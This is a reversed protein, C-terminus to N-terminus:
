SQASRKSLGTAPRKLMCSSITALRALWDPGQQDRVLRAGRMFARNADAAMERCHRVRRARSAEDDMDQRICDAEELNAREQGAAGISPRAVTM